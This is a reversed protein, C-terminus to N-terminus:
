ILLAAPAFGDIRTRKFVAVSYSPLASFFKNVYISNCVKNLLSPRSIRSENFCYPFLFREKKLFPTGNTGTFSITQPLTSVRKRIQEFHCLLCFASFFDWGVWRRTGWRCKQHVEFYTGTRNQYMGNEEVGSVPYPIQARIQLGKLSGLFRNGAQRVPVVVRNSTGARGLSYLSAKSDIGPSRLRNCIRARFVVLYWDM